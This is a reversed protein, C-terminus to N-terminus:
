LANIAAQAQPYQGTALLGRIQKVKPLIQEDRWKAVQQNWSLRNDVFANEEAVVPTQQMQVEILRLYEEGAAYQEQTISAQALKLRLSCWDELQTWHVPTPTEGPAPVHINLM